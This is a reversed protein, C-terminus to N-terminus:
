LDQYKGSGVLLRSHYTKGAIILPDNQNM